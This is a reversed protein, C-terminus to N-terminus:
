LWLFIVIKSFVPYTPTAVLQFPCLWCGAGNKKFTPKSIFNAQM